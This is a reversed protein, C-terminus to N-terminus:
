PKVKPPFAAARLTRVRSRAVLGAILAALLLVGAVVVTALVAGVIPTLALIAGFALALVAIFACVLAFGAWAAIGAVRGGVFKARAGQWALEAEVATRADDALDKVQDVLSGTDDEAGVDHPAAPPSRDPEDDAPDAM